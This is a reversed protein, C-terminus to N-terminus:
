FGKLHGLSAGIGVKHESRVEFMSSLASASFNVVKRPASKQTCFKVSLLFHTFEVKAVFFHTFSNKRCFQMISIYLTFLLFVLSGLVKFHETQEGKM